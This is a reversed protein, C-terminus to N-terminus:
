RASSPRMSASRKTSSCAGMRSMTSSITSPAKAYSGLGRSPRTSTWSTSVEMFEGHDWEEGDESPILHDIDFVLRTVSGIGHRTASVSIEHYSDELREIASRAEDVSVADSIYDADCNEPTDEVHDGELHLTHSRSTIMYPKTIDVM